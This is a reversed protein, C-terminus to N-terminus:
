INSGYQNNFAKQFQLYSDCICSLVTKVTQPYGKAHRLLTSINVVFEAAKTRLELIDDDVQIMLSFKEMAQQVIEDVSVQATHFDQLIIKNPGIDATINSDASQIKRLKSARYFRKVYNLWKGLDWAPDENYRVDSLDVLCIDGNASAGINPAHFDGHIVRPRIEPVASMARTFNNNMDVVSPIYTMSDHISNSYLIPTHLLMRLHVDAGADFLPSPIMVDNEEEILVGIRESARVSFMQSTYTGDEVPIQYLENLANFASEQFSFFEQLSVLGNHFNDVIEYGKNPKSLLETVLIQKEISSGSLAPSISTVGQEGLMRINKVEYNVKEGTKIFREMGDIDAIMYLCNTAGDTKVFQINTVFHGENELHSRVSDTGVDKQIYPGDGEDLGISVPTIKNHETFM